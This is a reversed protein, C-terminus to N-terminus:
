PVRRSRPPAVVTPKAPEQKNGVSEPADAKPGTCGSAVALGVATVLALALLRVMRPDVANSRTRAAAAVPADLVM